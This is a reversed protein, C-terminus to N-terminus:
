QNQEAFTKGPRDPNGCSFRRMVPRHGGIAADDLRREPSSLYRM